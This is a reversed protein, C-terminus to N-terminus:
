ENELFSILDTVTNKANGIFISKNILVVPRKLFTYHSLLAMKFDAETNLKGKWEETKLLQARKNILGEYTKTHAYLEELQEENLPNTKIDILEFSTLGPLQKLIKKCTDCTKLYYIKRM